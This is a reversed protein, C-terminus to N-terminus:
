TAGVCLIRALDSPQNAQQSCLRLSPTPPPPHLLLLYKPILCAGWHRRM